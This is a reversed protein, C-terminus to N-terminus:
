WVRIALWSAEFNFATWVFRAEDFAAGPEVTHPATMLM